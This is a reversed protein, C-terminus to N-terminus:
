QNFNCILICLVVLEFANFIPFQTEITKVAIAQKKRTLYINGAVIFISNKPSPICSM